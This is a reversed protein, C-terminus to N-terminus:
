RKRTSALVFEVLLPGAEDDSTGLDDCVAQHTKGDAVHKLTAQGGAARVAEAFRSSQRHNLSDPQLYILLFPPLPVDDKVHLIPSGDRQAEVREGFARRCNEAVTPAGNAIRDPIDFASGDLSIVGALSDRHLKHAALHRDDTAVLAALHSGASHGLLVIKKADGGHAAVNAQLWAIALALDRVNEPHQVAPALRYNVSVVVIGADNFLRPQAGVEDKDRKSWGGGHVFVCVPAAAAGAPAYIDLTQLPEGRGGYDVNLTSKTRTGLVIPPKPEVKAGATADTAQGFAAAALGFVSCGLLLFTIHKPM